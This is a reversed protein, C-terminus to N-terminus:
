EDLSLPGMPSDAFEVARVAALFAETDEVGGDIDELAQAIWMAATYSAAATYSPLKGFRQDWKEVFAQTAPSDRGECYHGASIYGVAAEQPEVGRLNSMDFTAEGGYLPITDKLGFDNYARIFRTAAAGAQLSFVCDPEAAQITALYSSFDTEGIPNWIQGVVEGGGDTFTNVFGGVAEHGFAYDSGITYLTRCSTNGYVWEGFPHHPQSSSWGAPRLLNPLRTRQTLDDASVIQYFTPTGTERVYEAVSLGTHSFLSGVLMHVQQQEVLLRAKSLAVDPDGADDEYYIEVPRGAVELGHEEWFMGFGEVMDQAGEAATSSLAALFGIKIPGTPEEEAPPSTPEEEAPPSTPEEEVPLSTPEAAPPSVPQCSVAVALVAVLMITLFRAKEM